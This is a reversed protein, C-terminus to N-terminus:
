SNNNSDLLTTIEGQIHEIKDWVKSTTVEDQDQFSTNGSVSAQQLDHKLFGNIKQRYMSWVATDTAHDMDVGNVNILSYM